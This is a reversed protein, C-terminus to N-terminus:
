LMHSQFADNMDKSLWLPLFTSLPEPRLDIDKLNLFPIWHLEIHDELQPLPQVSKLEESTAEFILDHRGPLVLADHSQYNSRSHKIQPVAKQLLVLSHYQGSSHIPAYPHPQTKPPFFGSVKM